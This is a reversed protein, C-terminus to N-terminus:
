GKATLMLSAEYQINNKKEELANKAKKANKSYVSDIGKALLFPSIKGGIEFGATLGALIPFVIPTFMISITAALVQVSTPLSTVLKVSNKKIRDIQDGSFSGVILGVGASISVPVLHTIAFLASAAIKSVFDIHELKKKDISSVYKRFRNIATEVKGVLKDSIKEWTSNTINIAKSEM